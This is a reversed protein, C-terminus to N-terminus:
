HKRSKTGWVTACNGLHSDEMRVNEWGSRILLEEIDEARLRDERDTPNLAKNSSTVRKWDGRLEELLKKEKLIRAGEDILPQLEFCYKPETVIFTGGPRLVRVAEELARLPHIMDYLALLISVGDFCNDPWHSLHEANQEVITIDDMNRDRVKRRLRGLMARSNDVATVRRGAELLKVTVNGTGAGIEIVNNVGPGTMAEIHRCVAAVYFDVEPLVRDYSIAYSEWILERTFASDLLQRYNEEGELERIEWFQTAGCLNDDEPNVFPVSTLRIDVHGFTSSRLSGLCTGNSLNAIGQKPVTGSARPGCPSLSDIDSDQWNLRCLLTQLSEDHYDGIDGDFLVRFAINYDIITARTGVTLVPIPVFYAARTLLGANRQNNNIPVTPVTWHEFNM